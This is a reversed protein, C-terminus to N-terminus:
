YIDKRVIGKELDVHGVGRVVNNGIYGGDLFRKLYSGTFALSTIEM